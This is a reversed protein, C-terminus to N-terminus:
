IASTLVQLVVDKTGDEEHPHVEMVRGMLDVSVINKVTREGSGAVSGKVWDAVVVSLIQGITVSRVSAFSTDLTLFLEDIDRLKDIFVRLAISDVQFELRDELTVEQFTGGPGVPPINRIIPPIFGILNPPPPVFQIPDLSTAGEQGVTSTPREPLPSGGTVVTLTEIPRPRRFVGAVIERSGLETATQENFVGFDIYFTLRGFEDIEAREKFDRDSLDRINSIFDAATEQRFELDLTEGVVEITGPLVGTAHVTNAAHIAQEIFSGLPRQATPITPLKVQLLGELPGLLPLTITETGYNWTEESVFGAWVPEGLESEIEWCMGVRAWEPQMDSVAVEISGETAESLAYFRSTSVLDIPGALVKFPPEPERVTARVHRVSAM